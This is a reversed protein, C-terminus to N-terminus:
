REKINIDQKIESKFKITQDYFNRGWGILKGNEFVMPTFEDDTELNDANWSTRYFWVDIEKDNINYKENRHPNGLQKLVEPKSQSLKLALMMNSNRQAVM